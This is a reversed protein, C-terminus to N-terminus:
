FNFFLYIFLYFGVCHKGQPIVFREEEKMEDDSVNNNPAAAGGGGDENNTDKAVVAPRRVRILYQDNVLEKCKQIVFDIDTRQEVM